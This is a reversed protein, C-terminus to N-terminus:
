FIKKALELLKEDPIIAMGLMVVVSIISIVIIFEM